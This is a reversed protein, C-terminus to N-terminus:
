DKGSFVRARKRDQALRYKENDSYNPHEAEIAAIDEPDPEVPPFKLEPEKDIIKKM